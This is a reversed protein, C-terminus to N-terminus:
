NETVMVMGTQIICVRSLYGHVGSEAQVASTVLRQRWPHEWLGALAQMNAVGRAKPNQRSPICAPLAELSSADQVPRVYTDNINYYYINKYVDYLIAM